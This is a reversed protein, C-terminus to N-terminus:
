RIAQVVRNFLNKGSASSLNQPPNFSTLFAVQDPRGARSFHYWMPLWGGAVKGGKVSRWDFPAVATTLDLSTKLPVCVSAIVEGAQVTEVAPKGTEQDFSAGSDIQLAKTLVLQGAVEKVASAPVNGRLPLHQGIQMEVNSKGIIAMLEGYHRLSAPQGCVSTLVDGAQVGAQKALRSVGSVVLHGSQFKEDVLLSFGRNDSEDVSTQVAAATVQDIYSLNTQQADAAHAAAAVAIMSLAFICKTKM